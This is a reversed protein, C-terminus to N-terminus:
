VDPVSSINTINSGFTYFKVTKILSNLNLETRKSVMKNAYLFNILRNLKTLKSEAM